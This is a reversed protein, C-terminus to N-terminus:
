FGPNGALRLIERGVDIGRERPARPDNEVELEWCCHLAYVDEPALDFSVEGYLSFTISGIMGIGTEASGDPRVGEFRYRVLWLRRPENSPPWFLTRVDYLSAEDPPRGFEMPHALWRCMEAVAMFDPNKARVPVANLEGLSELFTIAMAATRPDLCSESLLKVASEDGHRAAAFAARLRVDALPHRLGLEILAPHGEETLHPL